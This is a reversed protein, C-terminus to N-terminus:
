PKVKLKQYWALGDKGITRLNMTTPTLSLIEYNTSGMGICVLGNGPVSFEIRTSNAPTSASTANMFSLKKAGKTMIPFQGEAGTLGYFGVAAGLVFTNGKNDVDMTIQNNADKAFTIEDDYFGDAARSNAGASYWIPAFGDNPGVGFHGDADKDCMWKKSTGGTLNQLIDAPIEFAVFVKVKRSINSVTGGPGVASVTITYDNVGPTTYRYNITGSPVMLVKGDGFDIKYTIVKSATTTIAVAGSGNGGPNAADVGAVTATLTLDAPSALDGFAYETKQCALLGFACALALIGNKFFIKKM